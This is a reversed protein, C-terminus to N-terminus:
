VVVRTRVRNRQWRRQGFGFPQALADRSCLVKEVLGIPQRRQEGAFRAHAVVVVREFGTKIDDVHIPRRCQTAQRHARQQWFDHGGACFDGGNATPQRPM